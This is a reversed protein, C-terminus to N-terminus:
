PNAEEASAVSQSKGKFYRPKNNIIEEKRQFIIYKESTIKGAKSFMNQLDNQNHILAM